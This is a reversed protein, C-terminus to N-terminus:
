YNAGYYYLYYCFTLWDEEVSIDGYKAYFLLLIDRLEENAACLGYMKDSENVSTAQALYDRMAQTYDKGVITRGNITFPEDGEFNFNIDIKIPNGEEDLGNIQQPKGSAEAEIIRKLSNTATLNGSSLTFDVYIKDGFKKDHFYGDEKLEVQTHLPRIIQGMTDKDLSTTLAGSAVPVINVFTDEELKNIAFYLTGLTETSGFAVNIYCFEGAKLYKYLHFQGFENGRTTISDGDHSSEPRSLATHLKLDSSYIAAEFSDDPVDKGYISYFHYIGDEPATFKKIKGRPMVIDDFLIHNFKNDLDIEKIYADYAAEAADVANKAAEKQEATATSDASIRRYNYRALDVADLLSIARDADYVPTVEAATASFYALDETPDGMSDGDGYHIFFVCFELWENGTADSGLEQRTLATLIDRIEQTVPVMGQIDSNTSVHTYSMLQDYYNTGGFTCNREGIYQNYLSASRTYPIAHTIDLLLYPKKGNKDARNKVHYYKDTNDFEVEEYTNYVSNRADYDRAAYYSIDTPRIEESTVDVFRMNNVYVTDEYKKTTTGKQYVFAISHNGSELPICALATQWDKNGSDILTTRGLGNKGDVVIAFQGYTEQSSVKYDVLLAQSTSITLEAYLISYSMGHGSGLPVVSKGDASLAWPWSYEAADASFLVSVGTKNIAKSIEASPSQKANFDAPKDPVFNQIDDSSNGYDIDPVYDDSVYRSLEQIWVSSDTESGVVLECLVGYRDIIASVPLAYSGGQAAAYFNKYIEFKEVLGYHFPLNLGWEELTLLIDAEKDNYAGAPDIAMISLKDGLAAHTNVLAPFELRCNSCGSGWFNILVANKTELEQSLTVTKKEDANLSTTTFSFDYVVDGTKYVYDAAVSEDTIVKSPVYLKATSSSNAEITYNDAAYYGKPLNTLEVQYRSSKDLAFTVNGKDDTTGTFTDSGNKVTVSVGDLGRNGMSVVNVTTGKPTNGDVCAALPLILASSMVAAVFTSVIAKFKKKM